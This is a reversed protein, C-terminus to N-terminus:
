KTREESRRSNVEDVRWEDVIAKAKAEARLPMERAVQNQAEAEAEAVAGVVRRELEKLKM